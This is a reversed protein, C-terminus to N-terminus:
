QRGAKLVHSVAAYAYDHAQPWKSARPGAVNLVSIGERAVFAGIEAAAESHPTRAADILLLPKGHDLCCDRTYGTGGEIEGCHIIVTGDSELVNKLTRDSYGGRELETM